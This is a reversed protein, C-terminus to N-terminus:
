VYESFVRFSDIRVHSSVFLSKAYEGLVGFSMFIQLDWNIIICIKFKKVNKKDVINPISSALFGDWAVTGKLFKEKCPGDPWIRGAQSYYWQLRWPTSM